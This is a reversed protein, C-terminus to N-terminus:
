SLAVRRDERAIERGASADARSVPGKTLAYLSLDAGKGRLRLDGLSRKAVGPPLELRDILEASALVRDGTQRCLDQIRATTNVTDGLFVIEKKVSGMEGTVVAGCHLGARVNIAAGFEQAYDAAREALRDIAAFCAAVCGPPAGGEELKWTAILEDGVYSYIEGHAAVIPETLDLVFRNLLGHFALPGLREALGTSGVM